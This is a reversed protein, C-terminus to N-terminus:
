RGRDDQASRALAILGAIIAGATALGLAARAPDEKV